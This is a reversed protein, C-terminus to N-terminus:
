VERRQAPPPPTLPPPPATGPRASAKSSPRAASSSPRLPLPAVSSRSSTEPSSDGLVRDAYQRQHPPMHFLAAVAEGTLSRSAAVRPPLPLGGLRAPRPRAWFGEEEGIDVHVSPAPMAGVLISQISSMSSALSTLTPTLDPTKLLVREGVAFCESERAAREEAVLHGVLLEYKVQLEYRMRERPDEWESDGTQRNYFYQEEKVAGIPGVWDALVEAAAAQAKTLAQEVQESLEDLGVHEAACRGVLELVEAFTKALPHRWSSEDRLSHYFYLAGSAADYEESWHPPYPVLHARKAVEQVPAPSLPPVGLADLLQQLELSHPRKLGPWDQALSLM